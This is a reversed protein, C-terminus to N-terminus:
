VFGKEAAFEANVIIKERAAFRITFAHLVRASNCNQAQQKNMKM